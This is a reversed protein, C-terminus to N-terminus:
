GQTAQSGILPGFGAGGFLGTSFTEALEQIRQREQSAATHIADTIERMQAGAAVLGEIVALSRQTELAALPVSVQAGFGLSLEAAATAAALQRQAQEASIGSTLRAASQALQEAQTRESLQVGRESVVLNGRAIEDELKQQAINYQDEATQAKASVAIQALGLESRIENARKDETESLTIQRQGIALKGREIEGQLALQDTARKEEMGVQRVNVALQGRDIEEQLTLRGKEQTEQLGIQRQSVGLQGAGLQRQFELAAHEQAAKQQLDFAGAALQGASIAGQLGTQIGASALRQQEQLGQAAKFRNTLDANIFEPLAAGLARGTVDALAPSSSLGQLALQGELIPQTSMKFQAIAAQTLPSSGPAGQLFPSLGATVTNAIPSPPLVAQGVLKNINTLDAKEPAKYKAGIFKPPPRFHTPALSTNLPNLHTAM